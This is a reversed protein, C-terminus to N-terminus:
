RQAQVHRAFNELIAQWGQRQQEQPFENEPDFSV